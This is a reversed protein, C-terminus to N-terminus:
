IRHKSYSGQDMDRVWCSVQVPISVVEDLGFQLASAVDAALKQRVEPPRGALLDLSAHVFGEADGAEGTCFDNLWVLRSKIDSASFVHSQLLVQHAVQLLAPAHVFPKLNSTIEITLHPM